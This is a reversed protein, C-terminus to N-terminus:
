RPRERELRVDGAPIAGTSPSGASSASCGSFCSPILSIGGLARTYVGLAKTAGREKRGSVGGGLAPFGGLIRLDCGTDAGFTVTLVRTVLEGTRGAVLALILRVTRVVILGTCLWPDRLRDEELERDGRRDFVGILRPTYSIGGNPVLCAGLFNVPLASSTASKM